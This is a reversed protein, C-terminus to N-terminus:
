FLGSQLTQELLLRVQLALHGLQAALIGARQGGFQTLLELQLLSLHVRESGLGLRQLGLLGSRLALRRLRTSAHLAHPCEKLAPDLVSPGYNGGGSGLWSASFRGQLLQFALHGPELPVGGM